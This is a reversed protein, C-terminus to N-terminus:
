ITKDQKSFKEVTKRLSGVTYLSGLVCVVDSDKNLADELALVNDEIYEVNDRYRKICEYVAKPNTCRESPVSTVTIDGKAKSIIECSADIDKENLISFVYHVKKDAFLKEASALFATIGHSNHAGDLVVTKGNVDFIEFRCKWKADNLGKAITEDDVGLLHATEIACLANYIQFKGALNIRYLTNKYLFETGTIDLSKINLKTIDPIKLDSSRAFCTKQIKEYAEREQLPYAVTPCNNKIIGCKEFAIEGITSGLYQMHDFGIACIVSCKPKKIINTSDFRGGLGVELVVIDCEQEKFYTFAVACIVDFVTCCIGRQGLSEVLPKIKFTIRNLDDDSIYASNVSIRENFCEIFPSTFLGVKKGQEMFISNLMSSVSGKGNTGAIHVFNMNNQPNGLLNLLAEINKLEAKKGFTKLSHIYDVANM